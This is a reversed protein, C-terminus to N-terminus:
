AKLSQALYAVAAAQLSAASAPNAMLDGEERGGQSGKDSTASTAPQLLALRLAAQWLRRRQLPQQAAKQHLLQHLVGAQRHTVQWVAAASPKSSPGGGGQPQAVQKTQDAGLGTAGHQESLPTVLDSVDKVLDSPNVLDFTIAYTDHSCRLQLTHGAAAVHGGGPLVQLAQPLLL